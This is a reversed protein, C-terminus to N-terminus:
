RHCLLRRQSNIACDCEKQDAKSQDGSSHPLMAEDFSVL